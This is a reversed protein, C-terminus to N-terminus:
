RDHWDGEELVFLEELRCDFIKALKLALKVSPNFKGKEIAIITQRSVNAKSALMEQTLGNMARFEKLKNKM